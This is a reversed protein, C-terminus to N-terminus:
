SHDGIPLRSDCDAIARYPNPRPRNGNFVLRGPCEMGRFLGSDNRGPGTRSEDGAELHSSSCTRKSFFSWRKMFSTGFAVSSRTDWGINAAISKAVSKP